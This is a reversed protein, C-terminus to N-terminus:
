DSGIERRELPRYGARYSMIQNSDVNKEILDQKSWKLKLGIKEASNKLRQIHENILFPQRDFTRMIDCVGFGRLVALDDVPIVAKEAELFRGDVYYIKM